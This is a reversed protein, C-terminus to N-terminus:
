HRRTKVTYADIGVVVANVNVDVIVRIVVGILIRHEPRALHVEATVDVVRDDIRQVLVPDLEVGVAVATTVAPVAREVVEARM